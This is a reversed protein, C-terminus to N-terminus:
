AVYRSDGPHIAGHTEFIAAGVKLVVQRADVPIQETGETYDRPRYAGTEAQSYKRNRGVPGAIAARVRQM